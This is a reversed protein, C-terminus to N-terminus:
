ILPYYYMALAIILVPAFPMPTTRSSVSVVGSQCITCVIGKRGPNRFNQTLRSQKNLLWYLAGVFMIAIVVDVVYDPIHSVGVIFGLVALLKVDGAAVFKFPVYCVLGSVLMIVFGLAKDLWIGQSLLFTEGVPVSVISILLLILLWSNPIRYEKADSVGILVLIVWALISM